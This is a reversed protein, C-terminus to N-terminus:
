AHEETANFLLKANDEPDFPPHTAKELPWPCCALPLTDTSEASAPKDPPM